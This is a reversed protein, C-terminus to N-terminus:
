TPVLIHYEEQMSFYKAAMMAAPFVLVACTSGRLIFSIFHKAKRWGTPNANKVQVESSVKSGEVSEVDTSPSRDKKHSVRPDGEVAEARRNSPLQSEQKDDMCLTSSFASSVSETRQIASSWVSSSEQINETANSRHTVEDAVSELKDFLVRGKVAVTVRGQLRDELEHNSNSAILNDGESWDAESSTEYEVDECLKRAQNKVSTSEPSTQQQLSRILRRPTTFIHFDDVTLQSRSIRPSHADEMPTFQMSWSFSSTGHCSSEHSAVAENEGVKHSEDREFWDKESGVTPRCNKKAVGDGNVIRFQGFGHFNDSRIRESNKLIEEEGHEPHIHSSNRGSDGNRGYQGESEAVSRSLIGDKLSIDVGGSEFQMWKQFKHGIYDARKDCPSCDYNNMSQGSSVSSPAYSVVHSEQSEFAPSKSSGRSLGPSGWLSRRRGSKKGPSVSLCPNKQEEFSYDLGKQSARANATQLTEAVADRVSPTRDLSCRELTDITSCLESGVVQIDVSKLLSKIMQVANLRQHWNRNVVGAELIEVGARILSRGYPELIQCNSKALSCVLSMHAATQIAKEELAGTVRLCVENVIDVSAFKWNESEVLAQLCLAAGAALPEVKRLLVDLLPNCLDKIVGIRQAETSMPDISYRAIAPAVRACAQQLSLSGASSSLTKVVTGMIKSIQPIINKGHVRALVEYLSIAYQRSTQGERSDSVQALFLPITKTDLLEVYTRLANMATRRSAPDKDLNALEQKVLPSLAKGM